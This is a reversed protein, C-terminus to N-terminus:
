SARSRRPRTTGTTSASTGSASTCTTASAGTSSWRGGATASAAEVTSFDCFDTVVPKRFKLVRDGTLVLMSIHTAVVEAGPWDDPVASGAAVHDRGVQGAARVLAARAGGLESEGLELHGGMAEAREWLNGLGSRRGTDDTFGKGDDAVTLVLEDGVEIHM